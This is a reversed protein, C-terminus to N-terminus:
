RECVASGQQLREVLEDVEGGGSFATKEIHQRATRHSKLLQSFGVALVVPSLFRKLRPQMQPNPEAVQLQSRPAICQLTQRLSQSITTETHSRTTWQVLSWSGMFNRQEM